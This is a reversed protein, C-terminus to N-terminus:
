QKPVDAEAGLINTKLSKSCIDLILTCAPHRLEQGKYTQGTLLSVKEGLSVSWFDPPFVHFCASSHLCKYYYVAASPEQTLKRPQAQKAVSSCVMM